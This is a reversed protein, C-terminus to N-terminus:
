KKNRKEKLNWKQQALLRWWFRLQGRIATVRIPMLVDPVAAQIGGGYIPTILECRIEQWKEKSEPLNEKPVFDPILLAM